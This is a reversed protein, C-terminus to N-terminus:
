GNRVMAGRYSRARERFFEVIVRTAQIFTAGTRKERALESRCPMLAFRGLRSRWQKRLITQEHSNGLQAQQNRQYGAAIREGGLQRQGRPCGAQIGLGHGEQGAAGLAHGGAGAIAQQQEVIFAGFQGPELATEATQVGASGASLRQDCAEIVVALLGQQDTQIAGSFGPTRRQVQRGAVKRDIAQAEIVIRRGVQKHEQDTFLALALLPQHAITRGQQGLRLTNAAQWQRWRRLVALHIICGLSQHHVLLVDAPPGVRRVRFGLNLARGHRQEVVGRPFCAGHRQHRAPHERQVRFGRLQLQELLDPLTPNPLGAQGQRAEFFRLLQHYLAPLHQHPVVVAALEILAAEVPLGRRHRNRRCKRLDGCQALGFGHTALAVRRIVRGDPNM